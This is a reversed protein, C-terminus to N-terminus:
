SFMKANMGILHIKDIYLSTQASPKTATFDQITVVQHSKSHIRASRIYIFIYLFPSDSPFLKAETWM